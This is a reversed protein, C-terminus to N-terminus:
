APNRQTTRRAAHLRVAAVTASAIARGRDDTGTWQADRGRPDIEVLKVGAPVESGDRVIGRLIGDRPALSFTREGPLSWDAAALLGAPLGSM